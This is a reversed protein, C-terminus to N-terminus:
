TVTLTYTGSELDAVYQYTGAEHAVYESPQGEDIAIRYPFYYSYYLTRGDDSLHMDDPAYKSIGWGSSSTLPLDVTDGELKSATDKKYVLYLSYQPSHPIGNISGLIITCLETELQTEVTFFEKHFFM